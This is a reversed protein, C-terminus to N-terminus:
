RKKKSSGFEKTMEVITDGLNNVEEEIIKAINSVNIKEGKMALKDASSKAEPVVVWLIIYLMPGVGFFFGVAFLIRIWVPDEIGLYAAIGSAVGGIVCEDTDRYLRKGPRFKADEAHASKQKQHMKEAIDDDEPAAGFEEPTGMISIVKEVERLGVIPQGKLHENFLEAIRIEIDTLIDQCGDSTSFHKRITSLYKDLVVYANDDITFPYGGLNINFIKNM